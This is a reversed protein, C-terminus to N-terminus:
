ISTNVLVPVVSCKAPPRKHQKADLAAKLKDLLEELERDDYTYLIKCQTNEIRRQVLCEIGHDLCYM